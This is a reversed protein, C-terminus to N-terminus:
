PVQGQQQVPGPLCLESGPDPGLSFGPARSGMETVAKGQVCEVGWHLHQQCGLQSGWGPQRGGRNIYLGKERREDQLAKGLLM